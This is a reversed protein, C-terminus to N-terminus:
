HRSRKSHKTDPAIAKSTVVLTFGDEPQNDIITVGGAQVGRSIAEITKTRPSGIGAEFRAISIVPIEARDALEQQTWGLAARAARLAAITRQLNM